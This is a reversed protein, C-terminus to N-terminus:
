RSLLNGTGLFLDALGSYHRNIHFGALVLEIMDTAGAKVFARIDNLDNAWEDVILRVRSGREVLARRLAAFQEIQAPRSDM